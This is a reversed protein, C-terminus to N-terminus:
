DGNKLNPNAVDGTTQNGSLKSQAQSILAQIQEKESDGQALPLAKQWQTLAGAWDGKAQALFIGYNFLATIFDPQLALAEQYSKEALEYDGSYFASTAMDVIVNIDKNTTLVKQYAAVAKKFNDQSEAPAIIQATMGANYYADGLAKQLSENDPTEAAQKVMAEIRAKLDQYEAEANATNYTGPNAPSDKSLFYGIFASGVMAISVLVALIGAFIRQSKKKM